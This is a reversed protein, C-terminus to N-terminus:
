QGVALNKVVCQKFFLFIKHELNSVIREVFCYFYFQMGHYVFINQNQYNFVEDTVEGHTFHHCMQNQKKKFLSSPDSSAKLLKKELRTKYYHLTSKM